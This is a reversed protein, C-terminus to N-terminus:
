DDNAREEWAEIADELRRCKRTHAMCNECHVAHWFGDYSTTLIATDRGGCFPCPKLKNGTM